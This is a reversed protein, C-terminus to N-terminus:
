MNEFDIGIEDQYQAELDAKYQRRIGSIGNSLVNQREELDLEPDRLADENEVIWDRMAPGASRIFELEQTKTMRKGNSWNLSSDWSPPTLNMDYMIKFAPDVTEQSALRGVLSALRRSPGDEAVISPYRAPDGFYNVDKNLFNISGPMEKLLNSAWTSGVARQDSTVKTIDRLQGPVIMRGIIGGIIGEGEKVPDRAQTLGLIDAIGTLFSQNLVAVTAIAFPAVFARAALDSYDIESKKQQQKKFAQIEEATMAAMAFPVVLPTGLLSFYKDGIRVSYRIGGSQTWIRQQKPDRPGEAYFQVPPRNEQDEEDGGQLAQLVAPVIFATFGIMGKIFLEAQKDSRGQTFPDNVGAKRAQVLKIQSLGPTYNIFENTVNAVVNTFPVFFKVGAKDALLGNIFNAFRGIIGQPDQNFVTELADQEIEALELRAGKARQERYIENARIVIEQEKQKGKAQSSVLEQEAQRRAIDFGQQTYPSAGASAMKAEFAAERLFADTARLSRMFARPSVNKLVANFWDPLFNIKGDGFNTLYYVIKPANQPTASEIVNTKPYKARREDQMGSPNLGNRMVYLFSNVSPSQKGSVAGYLAQMMPFFTKPSYLSWVAINGILNNVGSVINLAPTGIQSLLSWYWYSSLIDGSTFKSKELLARGMKEEEISRIVGEPLLSIRDGWQRITNVFEADYPLYNKDFDHTQRFAEYVMESDLMGMNAMQILRQLLTRQNTKRKIKNNTLVEEAKKLATTLNESRQAILAKDMESSILDALETANEKSMGIETIIRSILGEKFNGEDTLSLKTIDKLNKINKFQAEAEEKIKKSMLPKPTVKGTEENVTFGLKETLIRNTEQNLYADADQIFKDILENSAGTGRLEARIHERVGAQTANRKEGLYQFLDAFKYNIADTADKIAQTRLSDSWENSRLSKFLDGFDENFAEKSQYKEAMRNSLDALFAKYANDNGIVAKVMELYKGSRKGAKQKPVGAMQVGMQKAATAFSQYMFNSVNEISFGKRNMGIALINQVTQDVIMNAYKDEKTDFLGASFDLLIKRTSENKRKGVEARISQRVKEPNLQSQKILSVAKRFVSQINAVKDVSKRRDGRIANAINEFPAKTLAYINGMADIISSKYSQIAMGAGGINRLTNAYQTKRGSERLSLTVKRALNAEVNRADLAFAERASLPMSSDMVQGIFTPMMKYMLQSLVLQEESNISYARQIAAEDMSGMDQAVRFFDVDPNGQFIKNLANTGATFANSTFLNAAVSYPSILPRPYTKGKQTTRSKYETLAKNDKPKLSEVLKNLDSVIGNSIRKMASESKKSMPEGEPTVGARAIIPPEGPRPVVIPEGREFVKAYRSKIRRYDETRKILNRAEDVSTAEVRITQVGMPETYRNFLEFTQAYQQTPTEGAKAEIAPTITESVAPEVTLSEKVTPTAEKTTYIFKGDGTEIFGNKRYFEDPNKGIGDIDESKLVISKSYKAALAKVDNIVSSGTGKGRVNEPVRIITIEINQESPFLILEVGSKEWKNELKNVDEGYEGFKLNKEQRKQKSANKREEIFREDETSIPKLEGKPQAASYDKFEYNAEGKVIGYEDLITNMTNLMKEVEKTSTGKGLYRAISTRLFQLANLLSDKWARIIGKDKDSFTEREAARIANLDETIQGTRVRQAVMRMFEQSFTLDDLLKTKDNLYANSVGPLANPNTRKVEKAIDSIRKVIYEQETLKPKKLAKYEDQIGQFMSLHIMEEELKKSAARSEQDLAADRSAARQEGQTAVQQLVNVDPIVLYKKGGFFVAKYTGSDASLKNGTLKNYEESSIVQTDTGALFGANNSVATRIANKLKQARKGTAQIKGIVKDTASMFAQLVPREPYFTGFPSRRGSEPLGPQRTPTTGQPDIGQEIATLEAIKNQEAFIAQNVRDIGAQDNEDLADFEKNLEEIKAQAEEKTASPKVQGAAPAEKVEAPGASLKDFQTQLQALNAKKENLALEAAQYAPATKEIGQLGMEDDAIEQKLNDIEGSVATMQQALDSVEDPALQDAVEDAKSEIDTEESGEEDGQLAKNKAKKGSIMQTFISTLIGAAGGVGGAYATGEFIDQNPDYVYKKVLNGAIQQPMENFLAEEAGEIVAQAARNLGKYIKDQQASDFRGIWKQLPSVLELPAQTLASFLAAQKAQDETAGDAKAESYGAWASNLGGFTLTTGKQFLSIARASNLGLSARAANGLAGVTIAAGTFGLGGSVDRGFQALVGVKRPDQGKLRMQDAYEAAEILSQGSQEFGAEKLLMGIPGITGSGVAGAYGDWARKFIDTATDMFDPSTMAWEEALKRVDVNRKLEEIRAPAEEAGLYQGAMRSMMGPTDIGKTKLYDLFKDNGIINDIFERQDGIAQVAAGQRTRIPVTTIKGEAGTVREEGLGTEIDVSVGKKGTILRSLFDLQNAEHKQQDQQLKSLESRLANSKSMYESFPLGSTSQLEKTKEKILNGRFDLTMGDPSIPEQITKGGIDIAQARRVEVPKGEEDEMFTKTQGPEMDLVDPGGVMPEGGVPLGGTRNIMEPVRKLENIREQEQRVDPALGALQLEDFAIDFEDRPQTNLQTFALEFEDVM